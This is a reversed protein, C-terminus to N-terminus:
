DFIDVVGCALELTLLTARFPFLAVEAATELPSLLIDATEVADHAATRHPVPRSTTQAQPIAPTPTAHQPETSTPESPRELADLASPVEKGLAESAARVLQPLDGADFWVGHTKCAEVEIPGAVVRRMGQRCVPCAPSPIGDRVPPVDPDLVALLRLGLEANVFVGACTKCALLKRGELERVVLISDACRPCRCGAFM